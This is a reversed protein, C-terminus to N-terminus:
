NMSNIIYIFHTQAEILFVYIFFMQASLIHALKHILFCIFILVTRSLNSQFFIIFSIFWVFLAFYFYYKCLVSLTFVFFFRINEKSVQITELLPVLPHHPLKPTM